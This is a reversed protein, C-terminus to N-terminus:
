TFVGSKSTCYAKQNLKQGVWYATKGQNKKKKGKKKKDGGLSPLIDLSWKSKKKNM